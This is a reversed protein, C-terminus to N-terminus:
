IEFNCNKVRVRQGPHLTLSTQTFFSWSSAPDCYIVTDSGDKSVIVESGGDRLAKVGILNKSSEIRVDPTTVSFQRLLPTKAEVSVEGYELAVHQRTATQTLSLATQENVQLRVSNNLDQVRRDGVGTLIDQSSEVSLLGCLKMGILLLPLVPLLGPTVRIIRDFNAAAWRAAVKLRRFLSRVAPAANKLDLLLGLIERIVTIKSTVEEDPRSM